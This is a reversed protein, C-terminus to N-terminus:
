AHVDRLEIWDEAARPPVEGNDQTFQQLMDFVGSALQHAAAPNYYVASRRGSLVLRGHLVRREVYVLGSLSPPLGAFGRDARFLENALFRYFDTALGAWFTYDFLVLLCPLGQAVAHQFQPEKEGSAKLLLRRLTEDHDLDVGGTVRLATRDGDSVNLTYVEVFCNLPATVRFDPCPKNGPLLPEAQLGAQRMFVYWALENVAGLHDTTTLSELRAKLVRRATPSPHPFHDFWGRLTALYQGGETALMAMVEDPWSSGTGKAASARWAEDFLTETEGM